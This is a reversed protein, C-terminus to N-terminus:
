TLVSHPGGACGDGVVPLGLFAGGPHGRTGTLAPTDQHGHDSSVSRWQITRSLKFPETDVATAQAHDLRLGQTSCLSPLQGNYPLYITMM